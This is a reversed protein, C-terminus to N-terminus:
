WESYKTGSKSNPATSRVDYVGGLTTDEPAVSKWSAASETLPDIPIARLYREKVLDDLEKPYKGKDTYYKDIADRMLYLNERLVAERTRELNNFYKPAALSLLTAIIAMAVLLEIMTFGQKRM